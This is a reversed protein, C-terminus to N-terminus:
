GGDGSSGRLHLGGHSGVQVLGLDGLEQNGVEMRKRPFDMRKVAAMKTM